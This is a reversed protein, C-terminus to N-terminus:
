TAMIHIYLSYSITEPNHYSRELEKVAAWSKPLLFSGSSSLLGQGFPVICQLKPTLVRATVLRVGSVM